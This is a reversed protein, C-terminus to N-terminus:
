SAASSASTTRARNASIAAASPLDGSATASPNKVMAMSFMALAITGGLLRRIGEIAADDYAEPNESLLKLACLAGDPARGVVDTFTGGRDIWFDLVGAATVQPMDAEWRTASAGPKSSM